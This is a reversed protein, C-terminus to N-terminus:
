LTLCKLFTIKLNIYKYHMYFKWGNSSLKLVFVLLSIFKIHHKNTLSVVPILTKHTKHM